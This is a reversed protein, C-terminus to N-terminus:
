FTLFAIAPNQLMPITSSTVLVAFYQLVSLFLSLSQPAHLKQLLPSLLVVEGNHWVLILSSRSTEFPDVQFPRPSSIQASSM